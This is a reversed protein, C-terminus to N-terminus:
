QPGHLPTYVTGSHFLYLGRTYLQKQKNDWYERIL